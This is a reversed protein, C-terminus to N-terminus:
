QSSMESEPLHRREGHTAGPVRRGSWRVTVPRPPESRDQPEWPRKRLKTSPSSKGRPLYAPSTQGSGSQPVPSVGGGSKAMGQDPHELVSGTDALM